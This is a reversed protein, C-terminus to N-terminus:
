FRKVMKQYDEGFLFMDRQYEFGLSEYLHRADPNKPSVVMTVQPIQQEQACAVGAQLLTTAVGHRRCEPLVAMSDLYFEGSQTEMEMESLDNGTVEAILPFTVSRLRAYDAGNYCVLAGVPHADVEAILTNKWSYLVDERQCMKTVQAVVSESPNDWGVAVLVVWATFAAEEITAERIYM